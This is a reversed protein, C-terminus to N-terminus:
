INSKPCVTFHILFIDLFLFSSWICWAFVYLLLFSVLFLEKIFDNGSLTKINIITM